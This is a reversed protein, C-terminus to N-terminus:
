VALVTLEAKWGEPTGADLVVPRKPPVREGTDHTLHDWM